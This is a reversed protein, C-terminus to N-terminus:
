QSLKTLLSRGFDIAGSKTQVKEEIRAIHIETLLEGILSSPTLNLEAILDKGTVLSVPHAVQDDANFYRKLLPELCEYELGFARATIALVPFSQKSELFFFYQERLTMPQDAIVLLKPLLEVVSSITKWEARSYKLNGITEQAQKSETSVLCVLKAIELWTPNETFELFQQTFELWIHHIKALRNLHGSSLDPLWYGLVGDEYAERVWRDGTSNLLLYHLENQVREAAIRSMLPALERLQTRTLDDISFGLQAAQRYARLLRLPDDALNKASVMRLMQKELDAIGGLPDIFQEHALHYAIANVCYDRRGLDKELTEGEQLAFDLTGQPFVVRAIQRKEDLVVFGARYRLSIDRATEVAGEPVVFDFDIYEGQRELLADRVAGGVLCADSPLEEVAFPLSRLFSGLRQHASALVM